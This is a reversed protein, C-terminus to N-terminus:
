SLRVLVVIIADANYATVKFKLNKLILSYYFM